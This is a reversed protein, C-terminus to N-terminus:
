FGGASGDALNASVDMWSLLYWNSGDYIWTTTDGSATVINASGCKLNDADFDYTIDHQSVITITQGIHGNLFTTIEEAAGGSKFVTAGQVNPTADANPFTIIRQASAKSKLKNVDHWGDESKVFLALGQATKRFTMDGVAGEGKQPTGPRVTTRSGKLNGLAREKRSAPLNSVRVGSKSTEASM